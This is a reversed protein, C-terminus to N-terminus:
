LTVLTNLVGIYMYMYSGQSTSLTKTEHQVTYVNNQYVNVTHVCRCIERYYAETQIEMEKVKTVSVESRFSVLERGKERLAQELTHVKQRLFCIASNSSSPTPAGQSTPVSKRTGALSRTADQSQLIFM